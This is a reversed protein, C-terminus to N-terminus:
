GLNKLLLSSVTFSVSLLQTVCACVCVFSCVSVHQCAHKITVVNRRIQKQMDDENKSEGGTGRFCNSKTSGGLSLSPLLACSEVQPIESASSQLTTPHTDALPLTRTLLQM